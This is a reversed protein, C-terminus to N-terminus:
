CIFHRPKKKKREEKAQDQFFIYFIVLQFYFIKGGCTIQNCALYTEIDRGCRVTMADGEEIM